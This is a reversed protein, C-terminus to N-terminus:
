KCKFGYCIKFSYQIVAHKEGTEETLIQMLGDEVQSVLFNENKLDIDETLAEEVQQILSYISDSTDGDSLCHIYFKFDEIYMTKSSADNKGVCQIFILPSKENDPVTDYIRIDLKSELKSKISEHVDGINIKGFM